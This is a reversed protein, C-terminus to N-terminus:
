GCPPTLDRGGFFEDVLSKWSRANEPPGCKFPKGALKEHRLAARQEKYWRLALEAGYEHVPAGNNQQFAYYTGGRVVTDNPAYPQLCGISAGCKKLIADYDTSLNKPSWDHHDDDNMHFFEHFLTERVGTESTLLSGKVNYTFTWPSAYASPTTRDVSRMFRATLARWRYKPAAQGAYLDRFFTEFDRASSLVWELQKRYQGMPPEPVLHLMGRFGGNMMEDKGLGAVDGTERYLALALDKAQSDAAYRVGLMCEIVDAGADACASPVAGAFLADAAEDNSVRPPPPALPTSDMPESADVIVEHDEQVDPLLTAVPGSSSAPPTCSILFALWFLRTM